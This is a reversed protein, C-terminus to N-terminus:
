CRSMMVWNDDIIRIIRFFSFIQNHSLRLVNTFSLIVTRLTLIFVISIGCSTVLRFIFVIVKIIAQVKVTNLIKLYQTSL